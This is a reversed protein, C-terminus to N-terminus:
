DRVLELHDAFAVDKKSLRGRRGSARKTFGKQLIPKLLAPIMELNIHKAFCEHHGHGFHIYACKHRDLRFKSPQEIRRGDLMASAFIVNVQDKQRILKARKTGAALLIDQKAVRKLMPALPDFRLAEFVLVNFDTDSKESILQLATALIKERKLVENLANPAVMPAQPLGGVIFGFIAARITDDTLNSETLQLKLYRSILTDQEVDSDRCEAIKLDIISLLQAGNNEATKKTKENTGDDMFQYKFISAALTEIEDLEQDNLQTGLGFYGCLVHSTARRTIGVVDIVKKKHILKNVLHETETPIRSNIDNPFIQSQLLLLQETYEKGPDMGLIFPIDGGMVTILNNKYPAQYIDSNSLVEKVDDYRFVFHTSSLSLIPRINRLIRYVFRFVSSPLTM